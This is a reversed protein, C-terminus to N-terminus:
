LSKKSEAQSTAPPLKSMFILPYRRWSFYYNFLIGSLILTLVNILLPTLLFQYGLAHIEQGGLVATLATAAGPPHFCHLYNMTIVAFSVGLAAALNVDSVWQYCSVGILGSILHGGIIAWPQSLASHPNSFLIITSAGIAAVLLPKDSAAMFHKSISLIALITVLSGLMVILQEIHDLTTTTIRWRYAFLERPTM